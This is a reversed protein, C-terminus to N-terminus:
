FFVRGNGAQMPLDHTAHFPYIAIANAFAQNISTCVKKMLTQCLFTYTWAGHQYAPVDYGYGSPSCTTLACINRYSGVLDDLFGGSECTDFFCIATVGKDLATHIDAALETDTYLGTPADVCCIATSGQGDGTGHGSVALVLHDGARCRDTLARMHTRICAETAVGAPTFSGYSSTLDGLLTLDTYGQSTLYKCWAVADEDCYSLDSITAYDSIGIVLARKRPVTIETQPDHGLSDIARLTYVCTSHSFIRFYYTLAGSPIRLVDNLKGGPALFYKRDESLPLRSRSPSTSGLIWLGRHNGASVDAIIRIYKAGTRLPVRFTTMVSPLATRQVLRLM